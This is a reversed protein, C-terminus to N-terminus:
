QSFSLRLSDLLGTARVTDGSARYMRALNEAIMRDGPFAAFLRENLSRLADKEERLISLGNLRTLAYQLEVQLHGAITREVMSILAQREGASDALSKCILAKVYFAEPHDRREIEREIASRAEPLQNLSLLAVSEMLADRPYEPYREEIKLLIRLAKEPQQLKLLEIVMGSFALYNTSDLAAAREYEGLAIAPRGSSGALFAKILYSSARVLHTQTNLYPIVLV